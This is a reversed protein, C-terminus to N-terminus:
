LLIEQNEEKQADYSEYRQIEEKKNIKMTLEACVIIKKSQDYTNLTLVIKDDPASSSLYAVLDLQLQGVQIPCKLGQYVVYGYNDPLEVTKPACLDGKIDDVVIGFVTAKADFTGNTVVEKVTGKTM